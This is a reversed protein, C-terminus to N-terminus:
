VIRTSGRSTLVPEVVKVSYETGASVVPDTVTFPDATDTAGETGPWFPDSVNLPVEPWCTVTCAALLVIPDTVIVSRPVSPTVTKVDDVLADEDNLRDLTVRLAVPVYVM